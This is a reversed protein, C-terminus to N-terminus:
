QACDGSADSCSTLMLDEDQVLGIEPCYVKEDGDEKSKPDEALNRDLVLVCDEFDGWSLGLEANLAWDLADAEEAQEQFYAANLLFSGGQMLVGPEADDIGARWADPAYLFGEPCAAHGEFAPEEMADEDDEPICVDEGWYFVDQTNPCMNVLNWSIETVEGDESELEELVRVWVMEGGVDISRLGLPDELISVQVEELEECDDCGTNDLTWVRGPILPLYANCDAGICSTGLGPNMVCRDIPFQDTIEIDKLNEASSVTMSAAFLLMALTCIRAIMKKM